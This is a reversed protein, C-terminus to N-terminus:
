RRRMQQSAVDMALLTWLDQMASTPPQNLLASGSNREGESAQGANIVNIIHLADNPAVFNDGNVDLFGFPQGIDSDSSVRGSGVANIYDIVALADNPAVHGNANVDLAIAANHWRHPKDVQIAFTQSASTDVGGSSTGGDDALAISIEASGSVNPAATFSLKGASDVNPGAAFLNPNDNSQVIFHVSQGAEDPPGASIGTAWGSINQPGSEDTTQVGPGKTFVPPDNVPTVTITVTAASSAISGDSAKYTFSDAGNFNADPKYTLNPAQGSLTGHAPGAAIAYSLANGSASTASLTMNASTDEATAISLDNAIPVPGGTGRV